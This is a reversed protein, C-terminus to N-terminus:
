KQKKARATMNPWVDTFVITCAPHKVLGKRILEQAEKSKIDIIKEEKNNKYEVIDPLNVGDVVSCFEYKSELDKFIKEIKDIKSKINTM